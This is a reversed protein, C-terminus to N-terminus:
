VNSGKLAAILVDLAGLSAPSEARLLNADFDLDFGPIALDGWWAAFEDADACGAAKAAVRFPVALSKTSALLRRVKLLMDPVSAPVAPASGPASETEIASAGALVARKADERRRCPVCTAFEEDWCADGVKLPEAHHFDKCAHTAVEQGCVECPNARIADQQRKEEAAIEEQRRIEEAADREKKWQMEATKRERKYAAQQAAMIKIPDSDRQRKMAANFEDQQNEVLGLTNDLYVFQLNRLSNLGENNKIRNNRLNLTQLKRLNDLGEIKTIQNSSLDLSQLNVLKELGEIKTIQNNSLNLDQLNGLKGLGKIESISKINQGSLNLEGSLNVLFSKGQVM